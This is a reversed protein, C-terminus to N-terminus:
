VLRCVRMCMNSIAIWAATSAIATNFLAAGCLMYMNSGAPVECSM